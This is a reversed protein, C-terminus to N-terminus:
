EQEEKDSAEKNNENQMQNLGDASNNKKMYEFLKIKNQNRVLISTINEFAKKEPETYNVMKLSDADIYLLKLYKSTTPPLDRLVLRNEVVSKIFAFVVAFIPVGVIMGVVGWVGGFFTIAFIVWFSSLGTSNGLIKPGIVNGDVQQLVLVFILFYLAKLPDVLVILLLSPIAGLFPGFFPIINTVGIIVSILLGFPTQMASTGVFCILGIIISDVIKGVFFGGFTKSSFRVNSIYRNATDVPFFAYAIKKAQAAMQDKGSLLYISIIFGIIINFSQKVFSIAGMSISMIMNNLQPLVKNNLVNEIYSSYQNYLNLAFPKIDPNKELIDNVWTTITEQYTSSQEIITGISKGVQPIVMAFFGYVLLAFFALTILVSFSRIGKKNKEKHLVRFLPITFKREIINQLPTLLYALIIGDIVPMLIVLYKRLTDLVNSMHFLAYYALLSAIIVLFATIGWKFYSNDKKM